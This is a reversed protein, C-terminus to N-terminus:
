RARENLKPDLSVSFLSRVKTENSGVLNAVFKLSEVLIPMVVQFVLPFALTLIQLPSIKVSSLHPNVDRFTVCTQALSSLDNNNLVSEKVILELLENPLISM